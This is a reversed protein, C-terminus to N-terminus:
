IRSELGAKTLPELLTERDKELLVRNSFVAHVKKVNSDTLLALLATMATCRSKGHGGQVIHMQRPHKARLHLATLAVAFQMENPKQTLEGLAAAVQPNTVRLDKMYRLSVGPNLKQFDQKYSKLSVCDTIHKRVEHEEM